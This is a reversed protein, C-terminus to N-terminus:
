STSGADGAEDAAEGLRRHAVAHSPDVELAHEWLRAAGAADGYRRHVAALISWAAAADPALRGASRHQTSEM